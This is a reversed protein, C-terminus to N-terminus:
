APRRAIACVCAGRYHFDEISLRSVVDRARELFVMRAAPTLSELKRKSAGFTTRMVIFRDMEWNHELHEIWSRVTELGAKAFLMAMKEPTNMADDNRPPMPTPDTAGHANLEDDWVQTARTVPDDAWTVTGLTGGPRLVRAAEALAPVPEQLHFLVFAMLAVDVCGDRVALASADMLALAIGHEAALTLMGPSRDVGVVSASRACRHIDPLLAGTGTGVDLVRNVDAWPLAELLRLAVPRIVPSWTDTYGRAYASYGEAVRQTHDAM